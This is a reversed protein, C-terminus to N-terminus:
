VHNKFGKKKGNTPLYRMMKSLTRTSFSSSGIQIRFIFAKM